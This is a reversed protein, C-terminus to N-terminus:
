GPDSSFTGDLYVTQGASVHLTGDIRALPTSDHTAEVTAATLPSLLMLSVIVVITLLPCVTESAVPNKLGLLKTDAAKEM